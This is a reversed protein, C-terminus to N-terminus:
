TLKILKRDIKSSTNYIPSGKPLPKLPVGSKIRENILHHLIALDLYKDGHQYAGLDRLFADKQDRLQACVAFWFESDTANVFREQERKARDKFANQVADLEHARDAEPDGTPTLMALPNPEPKAPLMPRRLHPPLPKNITPKGPRIPM